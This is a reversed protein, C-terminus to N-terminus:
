PCPVICIRRVWRGGLGTVSDNCNCQGGGRPRPSRQEQEKIKNGIEVTKQEYEDKDIKQTKFNIVVMGYKAVLQAIRNSDTAPSNIVQEFKKRAADYKECSLYTAGLTVVADEIGGADDVFKEIAELIEPSYENFAM